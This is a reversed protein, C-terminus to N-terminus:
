TVAVMGERGLYFVKSNFLLGWNVRGEKMAKTQYNTM